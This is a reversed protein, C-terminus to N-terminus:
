KGNKGNLAIEAEFKKREKQLKLRRQEARVAIARLRQRGLANDLEIILNLLGDSATAVSNYIRELGKPLIRHSRCVNGSFEHFMEQPETLEVSVKQEKRKVGRKGTAIDAAVKATLKGARMAPLLDPRKERVKRVRKVTDVSVGFLKAAEAHSFSLAQASENKKSSYIAGGHPLNAMEEALVGRQTVTLNRRQLNLSVVDRIVEEHTAKKKKCELKEWDLGAHTAADLRNRGDVLYDKGDITRVEVPVKLGNKKINESLAALEEPSLMPFLETAPHILLTDRWNNNAAKRM